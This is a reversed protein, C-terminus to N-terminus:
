SKVGFTRPHSLKFRCRSSAWPPVDFVSDPARPTLHSYQRGTPKACRVLFLWLRSIEGFTGSRRDVFLIDGSVSRWPLPLM